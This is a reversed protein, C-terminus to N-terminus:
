LREYLVDGNEDFETVHGNGYDRVRTRSDLAFAECDMERGMEDEIESLETKKREQARLWCENELALWKGCAEDFAAEIEKIERSIAEEAEHRERIRGRWKREGELASRRRELIKLLEGLSDRRRDLRGLEASEKELEEAEIRECEAVYREGARM